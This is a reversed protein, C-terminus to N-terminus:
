KRGCPIMKKDKKQNEKRHERTPEDHPAKQFGFLKIFLNKVIIFDYISHGLFDQMLSYFFSDGLTADNYSYFRNNLRKQKDLHKYQKKYKQPLWGPIDGGWLLWDGMDNVYTERSVGFRKKFVNPIVRDNKALIPTM